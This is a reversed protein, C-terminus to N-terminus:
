ISIDLHHEENGTDPEFEEKSDYLTPSLAEEGARSEDSTLEAAEEAQGDRARRKRRGAFPNHRKLDREVEPGKQQSQHVQSEANVLDQEQAARTRMQAALSARDAIQQIREAAHVRVIETLPDIPQPM